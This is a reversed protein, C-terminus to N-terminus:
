TPEFLDLEADSSIGILSLVGAFRRATSDRLHLPAERSDQYEFVCDELLFSAVAEDAGSVVVWTRGDEKSFGMTGILRASAVLPRTKPCWVATLLFRESAYKQLLSIGEDWSLRM